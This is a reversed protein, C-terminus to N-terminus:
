QYMPKRSLWSFIVIQDFINKDNTDTAKLLCHFMDLGNAMDGEIETLSEISVDMENLMDEITQGVYSLLFEKCFSERATDDAVVKEQFRRRSMGHEYYRKYAADIQYALYDRLRGHDLRAPVCDRVEDEILYVSPFFIARRKGRCPGVDCDKYM